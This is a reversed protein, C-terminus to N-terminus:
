EQQDDQSDDHDESARNASVAAPLARELLENQKRLEIALDGLGGPTDVDLLRPLDRVEEPTLFHFVKRRLPKIKAVAVGLLGTVAWSVITFWLGNTELWRYAGM